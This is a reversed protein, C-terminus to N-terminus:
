IHILSLFAASRSELVHGVGSARMVEGLAVPPLYSRVDDLWGRMAPDVSIYEVSVRLDGDELAPPADQTIRWTSANTMGKPRANLRIQTPTTQTQTKSLTM